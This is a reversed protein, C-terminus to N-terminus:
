SSWRLEAWEQSEVAELFLRLAVIFDYVPEGPYLDDDVGDPIGEPTKVFFTASM